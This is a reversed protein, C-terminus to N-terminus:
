AISYFHATGGPNEITIAGDLDRYQADLTHGVLKIANTGDPNLDVRSVLMTHDVGNDNEPDWDFMVVDGVKVSARESLELRTTDDRSNLYDDMENGRIWSLSYDGTTAYDSYWDSNQQWGRALLTQNVFNGCDNDSFRSWQALNYDQWYTFAYQLQRDVATVAQYAFPTGADLSTGDRFALAIAAAAPQYDVAAPTLFSVAGTGDVALSTAAAGGVTVGVVDALGSGTLSVATGGTLSGSAVSVGTVTPAAAASATPASEGFANSDACGALALLGSGAM